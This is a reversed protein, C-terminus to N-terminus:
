ENPRRKADFKAIVVMMAEFEVAGKVSKFKHLLEFWILNAYIFLYISYSVFYSTVGSILEIM